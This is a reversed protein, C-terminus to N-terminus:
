VHSIIPPRCYNKRGSVQRAHFFGLFVPSIMQMFRMHLLCDALRDSFGLDGFPGRGMGEAVAKGTMQKLGIIIDAGNLLQQPVAIHPGGHDIGM